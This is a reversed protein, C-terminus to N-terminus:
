DIPFDFYTDPFPENLLMYHWWEKRYPDFGAKEMKEKLYRRNQLYVDEILTTEHFSAEDMFDFSSGMDVTNDDLYYFSFGDLLKRPKPIVPTIKKGKEILTLDVASGRTHSSRKAIFGLDFAKKIDFRPHYYKKAWNTDENEIWGVFTDVTHQPRYADYVVLDFGDKEVDEQVCQLAIAAKESIIIQNPNHYGAFRRGMFNHTDYYRLSIRIRPDVSQLNVFGDPLTKIKKSCNSIM